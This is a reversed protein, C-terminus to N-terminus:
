ADRDQGEGTAPEDALRWPTVERRVLGTVANPLDEALRRAAAEDPGSVFPEAEGRRCAGWETVMGPKPKSAEAIWRAIIAAASDEWNALWWVTRDEYESTEVGATELARHLLEARQAQSLISWGPEPPIVSRAAASAERENAYADTM